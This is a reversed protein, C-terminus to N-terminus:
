DQIRKMLVQVAYRRMADLAEPSRDGRYGEGHEALFAKAIDVVYDGQYGGEPVAEDQGLAQQYRAWVSAGLMEMQKGADNYYFERHVSWGTWELLACIADGLAAQRGHGLHLPGTPNASVWEVLIREGGGVDSRGY